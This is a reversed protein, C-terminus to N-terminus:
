KATVSRMAEMMQASAQTPSLEGLLCLDLYDAFVMNLSSFYEGTEARVMEIPITSGQDIFQQLTRANAAYGITGADLSSRAPLWNGDHCFKVMKERSTVFAVLQAALEPHKSSKTVALANGGLDSAAAVNRIMYSTTWEDPMEADLQSISEPNNLMMGIQGTLFLNRAVDGGGSKSMNGPAVLEEEYWRRGFALAEISGEQDMSPTAGDDGLFSGGNQYVIPLWRYATEAGGWGYGFAYKGTVKKVERSIELFEDWTWATDLTKPPDIGIQEMIPRNLYTIFNDTHQFVGYIGDERAGIAWFAESWDAAYDSPIADSIDILSGNAAYRGIQQPTIRIIDPALDAALRTIFWQHFQGTTVEIAVSTGPNAAVFEDAIAQYSVLDTPINWSSLRLHKTATPAGACAALAGAVSIGAVALFGRRGLEKNMIPQNTPPM